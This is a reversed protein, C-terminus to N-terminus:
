NTAVESVRPGGNVTAEGVAAFGNGRRAISPASGVPATGACEISGSVPASNTAVISGDDLTVIGNSSTAYCTSSSVCSVGSLRCLNGALV